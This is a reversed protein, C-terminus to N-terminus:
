LVGFIVEQTLDGFKEMIPDDTYVDADLQETAEGGLLQRRMARGQTLLNENSM